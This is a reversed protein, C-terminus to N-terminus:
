LRNKWTYKLRPNDIGKFYLNMVIRVDTEEDAELQKCDESQAHFTQSPSGAQHRPSHWQHRKQEPSEVDIDIGENADDRYKDKPNHIMRKRKKYEKLYLSTNRGSDKKSSSKPHNLHLGPLCMTGANSPSSDLPDLPTIDDFNDEGESSFNDIDVQSLRFGDTNGEALICFIVHMSNHFYIISYSFDSFNNVSDKYSSPVRIFVHAIGHIDSKSHM